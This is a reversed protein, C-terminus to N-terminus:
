RARAAYRQNRRATTEREVRFTMERRDFDRAIADNALNDSKSRIPRCTKHDLSLPESALKEHVVVTM